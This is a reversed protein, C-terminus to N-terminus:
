RVACHQVACPEAGWIRALCISEAHGAGSHRAAAPRSGRLGRFPLNFPEFRLIM